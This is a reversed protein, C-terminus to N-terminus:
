VKVVGSMDAYWLATESARLAHPIVSFIDKFASRPVFRTQGFQPPL